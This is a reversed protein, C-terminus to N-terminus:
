GADIMYRIAARSAVPIRTGYRAALATFGPRRLREAFWRGATFVRAYRSRLAETYRKWSEDHGNRASALIARAALEGSEMAYGIGEGTFPNALGAADGVLLLGPAAPTRDLGMPIASSAIAGTADDEPLRRSAPLAYVFADFAERASLQAAGPRGHHGRGARIVFAGVNLQGDGTPFIWGYGPLRGPHREVGLWTEFVPDMRAQPRYYRRAAVAIPAGPERGLGARAAIRGSAGDAAVVWRARLTREPPRERLGAESSAPRGARVTVGAIRGAEVIPAVAETSERVAAGAGAAREVLMRDLELRRRVLGFGPQSRGQWGVDVPPGETGHVRSAEIRTFGRDAVDIGMRILAGVARPTLGDGCVKDRPFTARDVVLVDLGARALHYAAAAGGPGAGVVLVDADHRASGPQRSPTM